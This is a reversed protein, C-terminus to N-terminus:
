ATGCSMLGKPFLLETAVVYGAPRYDILGLSRLRGLNNAFSGSTPSANSFVAVHAKQPSNIGLSEFTALTDLIRQQPRSISEGTAAKVGPPNVL